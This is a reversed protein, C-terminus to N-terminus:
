KQRILNKVEEIKITDWDTAIVKYTIGKYTFTDGVSLKDSSIGISVEDNM